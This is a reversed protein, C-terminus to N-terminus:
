PRVPQCLVEDLPISEGTRVRLLRCHGDLIQLRFQEARGPIRADTDPQGIGAALRPELTVLSDSGFADAALTIRTVGIAEQMATQVRARSDVDDQGLLADIPVETVVQCGGHLALVLLAALVCRIM